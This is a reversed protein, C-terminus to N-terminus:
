GIWEEVWCLLKREVCRCVATARRHPETVGPVGYYQKVQMNALAVVSFAENIEHFDVDGLSIGANKLALPVADSPAVTFEVPAQSPTCYCLNCRTRARVGGLNSKMHPRRRGYNKIPPHSDGAMVILVAISLLSVFKYM